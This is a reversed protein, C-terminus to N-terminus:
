RSSFDLAALIGDGARRIGVSDAVRQGGYVAISYTM